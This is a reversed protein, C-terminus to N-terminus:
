CKSMRRLTIALTQIHQGAFLNSASVLHQIAFQGVTFFLRSLRSASVGAHEQATDDGLDM